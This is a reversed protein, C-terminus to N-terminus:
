AISSTKPPLVIHSRLRNILICAAIVYLPLILQITVSFITSICNAFSVQIHTNHLALTCILEVSSSTARLLSGGDLQFSIHPRYCQYTQCCYFPQLPHWLTSYGYCTIGVFVRVKYTLFALTSHRRNIKWPGVIDGQTDQKTAGLNQKLEHHFQPTTWHGCCCDVM